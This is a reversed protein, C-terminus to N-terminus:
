KDGRGVNKNADLDNGCLRPRSQTEKLEETTQKGQREVMYSLLAASPSSESSSTCTRSQLTAVTHTVQPLAAGASTM